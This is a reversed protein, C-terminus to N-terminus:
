FAVGSDVYIQINLRVSRREANEMVITLQTGNRIRPPIHLSVSRQTQILGGDCLPCPFFHRIGTGGCAPCAALVPVRLPFLGGSAAEDPTLGIECYLDTGDDPAAGRCFPEPAPTLVTETRFRSVLRNKSPRDELIADYRRRKKEDMLTEYAEQATLFQRTATSSHTVDPHLQKVVRRYAKKIRSPSAGRAVGLTFYYDKPM